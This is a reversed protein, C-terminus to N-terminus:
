HSSHGESSFSTDTCNRRKWLFVVHLPVGYPSATHINAIETNETWKWQSGLVSKLFYPGNFFILILVFLFGRSSHWLVHVPIFTVRPPRFRGKKKWYVWQYAKVKKLPCPLGVNISLFLFGKPQTELALATNETLTEEERRKIFKM